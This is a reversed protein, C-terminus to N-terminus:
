SIMGLLKDFSFSSFLEGATKVGLLAGSKKANERFIYAILEQRSNFTDTEYVNDLVQSYEFTGAQTEPATAAYGLNAMLNHNLLAILPHIKMMDITKTVVQDTLQGLLDIGGELSSMVM